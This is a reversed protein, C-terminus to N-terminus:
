ITHRADDTDAAEGSWGRSLWSDPRAVTPASGHMCGRVEKNQEQYIFSSHVTLSHLATRIGKTPWYSGATRRGSQGIPLLM